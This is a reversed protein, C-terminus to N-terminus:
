SEKTCRMCGELLRHECFSSRVAVNGHSAVNDSSVDLANCLTATCYSVIHVEAAFLNDLSALGASADEGGSSAEVALRLSFPPNRFGSVRVFDIRRSEFM